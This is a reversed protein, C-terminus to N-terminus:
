RPPSPPPSTLSSAAMPAATPGHARSDIRAHIATAPPTSPGSQPREHFVPNQRRVPSRWRPVPPFKKAPPVRVHTAEILRHQKGNENRSFCRCQRAKPGGFVALVRFFYLGSWGETPAWFLSAPMHVAAALRQDLEGDHRQHDIHQQGRDQGEALHQIAGLRKLLGRVDGGPFDAARRKRRRGIQMSTRYPADVIRLQAEARGFTATRDATAAIRDQRRTGAPWDIRSAILVQGM